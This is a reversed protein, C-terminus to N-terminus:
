RRYRGLKSEVQIKRLKEREWSRERLKEKRGRKIKIVKKSKGREYIKTDKESRGKKV